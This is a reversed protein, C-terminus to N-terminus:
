LQVNNYFYRFYHGHYRETATTTPKKMQQVGNWLHIELETKWCKWIGFIHHIEKETSKWNLKGVNGFVLCFEKGTLPEEKHNDGKKSVPCFFELLYFIAAAGIGM